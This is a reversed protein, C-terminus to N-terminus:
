VDEWINTQISNSYQVEKAVSEPVIYRRIALLKGFKPHDNTRKAFMPLSRLSWPRKWSM